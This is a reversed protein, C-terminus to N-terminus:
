SRLTRWTVSSLTMTYLQKRIRCCSKCHESIAKRRKCIDVFILEMKTGQAGYAYLIKTFRIYYATTGNLFIASLAFAVSHTFSHKISIANGSRKKSGVGELIVNSLINEAQFGLSDGLLSQHYSIMFAKENSM